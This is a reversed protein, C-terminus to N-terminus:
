KSNKFRKVIKNLIAKENENVKTEAKPKTEPATKPPTLPRRKPNKEPKTPPEAIGPERRPKSPATEYGAEQLAKCIEKKLENLTLKKM